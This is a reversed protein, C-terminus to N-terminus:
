VRSLPYSGLAEHSMGDRQARSCFFTLERANLAGWEAGRLADACAALQPDGTPNKSRALTVHPEFTEYEAPHGLPELERILDQQLTALEQCQGTLAAWLVKPRHLPGFVGGGRVDLALPAHRSATKGLAGSVKPVDADAMEGLFALTLHLRDPRVWRADPALKRLRGLEEGIRRQLADDLGIAIFTRV